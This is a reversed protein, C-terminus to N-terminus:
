MLLFILSRCGYNQARHARELGVKKPAEVAYPLASFGTLQEMHPQLM